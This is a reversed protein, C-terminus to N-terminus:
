VSWFKTVIERQQNIHINQTILSAVVYGVFSLVIPIVVSHMGLLNPFYNSFIIYTSVGIIISALAGYANGKKWYLGMIIPWIFAAELGGIAFLQLWILLDPPNICLLIVILGVITTVSISMRKVTKEQANPNIYNVYIDKVISSSVILLLSDVTSMIAALPAALIIGSFWNPLVEMALLPMVSDAVEVGPLVARAFVGTLHMGLMLVGVVFTGIILARHMAKSSKYSMARVAIYPLAVVAVGVLVWFSSVYAPSLSGDAGFPSILNPNEAKLDAVINSIGGGAVITAILIVITGGFMVIGQIMDTITDARFGGVSVYLLLTVGFIFIATIYSMGTISEVLRAGGVWQAAMASFLFIVISLASLVVVLKSKYREKLFDIITIAKIKRAVIAFKKGLIMLTFYGTVLQSMSLLVWAFGVSYAVGPGGLFSSGSAFSSVMTMALIFGGLERSGIFYEQMFSISRNTNKSAYLGVAIVLLLFILLPVIVDWNM